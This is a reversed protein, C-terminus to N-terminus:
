VFFLRWTTVVLAHTVMPVRVSRSKVYAMGCFVGILTAVLARRWNPFAHFWLHAVGFLVSSVMVAVVPSLGRNLIARAIIGRFLLEEGLAVIWLIGFFTGITIGAIVLPEKRLPAWRVDHLSLALSIVPVIAVLYWLAGVRWEHLNPWLGFSGPDWRRLGLLAFIGIRLWMVHGLVDVHVAPDPSQYIRLFVRTVIPSAAIVLFGADYIFRHPLLVQWFSLVATLGVLLYLSHANFTGALLSFVLYPVSASVWLMLAETRPSEIRVLAERVSRFTAALYFLAELLFAPLVATRIWPDAPHQQGYIVAAVLLAIWVM